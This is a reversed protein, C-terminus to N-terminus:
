ESAIPTAVAVSLQVSVEDMRILLSAGAANGKPTVVTVQVAASAAPFVAVHECSMVMVSLTEGTIAHGDARVIPVLSPQVYAPGMPGAVAVSLQVSAEDMRTLLSAGAANGKPTVVTVQVAASTAPFVAVHECSMVMVSLIEGTIAHGDSRVNPALSPQVYTPGMPVAVAVSLQVSVEDM